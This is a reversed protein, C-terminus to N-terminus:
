DMAKCHIKGWRKHELEVAIKTPTGPKGDFMPTISLTFHGFGSMDRRTATITQNVRDAPGTTVGGLPEITISGDSSTTLEYGTAEVAKWTVTVESKWNDDARSCTVTAADVKETPAWTGATVAVAVTGSQSWLANAGAAGLGLVVVVVYTIMAARLGPFKRSM